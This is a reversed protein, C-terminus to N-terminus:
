DKKGASYFSARLESTAQEVLETVTLGLPEYDPDSSNEEDLMHMEFAIRALRDLHCIQSELNRLAPLEKPNRV